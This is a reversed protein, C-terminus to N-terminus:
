YGFFSLALIATMAAIFLLMGANLFVVEGRKERPIPCEPAPCGQFTFQRRSTFILCLGVIAVGIVSFSWAYILMLPAYKEIFSAMIQQDNYNINSAIEILGEYGGVLRILMSPVFGGILNLTMHLLITTRINETRIYIFAFFMGVAFAYFFQQLNGHFLGFTVSSLVASLTLGYRGTRDIILKRFVLEEMIPGIVVVFAFVAAPNLRTMVADLGSASSHGTAAYIASNLINSVINGVQMIGLAMLVAIFFNFGGLRRPKAPTGDPMPSSLRCRPLRRMILWAAPMAILYIVASGRLWFFWESAAAAPFYRDGLYYLGFSVAYELLAMVFFAIGFTTFARRAGDLGDGHRDPSRKTDPIDKQENM